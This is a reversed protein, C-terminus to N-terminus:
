EEVSVQLKHMKSRQTLVHEKFPQLNAQQERAEELAAVLSTAQEKLETTQVQSQRKSEELAAKQLELEGIKSLLQDKETQLNECITKM